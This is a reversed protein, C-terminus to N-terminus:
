ISYIEGENHCVGRVNGRSVHTINMRHTTNNYVSYQQITNIFLCLIYGDINYCNEKNTQTTQAGIDQDTKCMSTNLHYKTHSRAFEDPQNM